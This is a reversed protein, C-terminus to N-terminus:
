LDLVKISKNQLNCLRAELDCLLTSISTPNCYESWLGEWSATTLDNDKLRLASMRRGQKPAQALYRKLTEKFFSDSFQEKTGLGEGGRKHTGVEKHLGIEFGSNYVKAWVGHLLSDIVAM